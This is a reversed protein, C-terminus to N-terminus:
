SGITTGPDQSEKFTPSGFSTTKKQPCLRYSRWRPESILLVLWFFIILFFKYVFFM